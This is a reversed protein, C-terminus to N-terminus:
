NVMIVQKIRELLPKQSFSRKDMPPRVRRESHQKIGWQLLGMVTSYSPRQHDVSIEPMNRPAGVRVPCGLAESALKQFGPMESTGGTFVIGGAPIRHLGAQQTKVMILGFTERLRDVMPACLATRNILRRQRGQFSPLLVEAERDIAEPKAHGWKIKLEEAFYYPMGLAVSLDRTLQNGGVPISAGYWVTGNKFIAVDTSGAGMDVLVVGLEKESETLVAEGSALGGMVLSRVAVNSNQIAKTTENVNDHDGFVALSEVQLRGAHIGVPNRMSRYGDVVYNIPIVHIVEKGFPVEPYSMDTLTRVDELSVQGNQDSPHLLANTNTCTIHNGSISVYAWPVRSGLSSHAEEISAEIAEQAEDVNIIQGKKVGQSPALGHGVIKLQGEPGVRAVVTCVKSTGIDIATYYIDNLMIIKREEM